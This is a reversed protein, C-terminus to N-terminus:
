PMSLPVADPHKSRFWTTQRRAYQRTAIAIREVLASHSFRGQLFDGIDAYGIAQRATPTKLLGKALMIRAEEIWGSRLMEETRLAIRRVLEERSWSLLFQSFRSDPKRPGTQLESIQHGSLRYVECARILRRRCQRFRQYDLPCHIRMYDLLAPFGEDNDYRRDLEARLAPDAPLSDLGYILAFLYLGSGGVIIPRKGRRLVDAIADEADKMFRFVDSPEWIDMSDILHHPVADREAKTPKATGIDLGRYFQMSDASIVEIPFKEALHLALATKGSATPGLLVPIRDSSSFVDRLVPDIPPTM